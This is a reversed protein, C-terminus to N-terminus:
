FTIGSEKLRDTFNFQYFVKFQSITELQAKKRAPLTNLGVDPDPFRVVQPSPAQNLPGGLPSKLGAPLWLGRGAGWSNVALSAGAAAATSIFTRRKM